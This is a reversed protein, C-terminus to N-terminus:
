SHTPVPTASRNCSPCIMRFLCDWGLPSFGDPLDPVSPLATAHLDYMANCRTCVMHGHSFEPQDFRDPANAVRIRRIVAAECLLNLNRYVTGFSISPLQKRAAEWVDEASPHSRSARVLEAIIARQKTM